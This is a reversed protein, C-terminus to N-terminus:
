AWSYHRLLRPLAHTPDVAVWARLAAIRSHCRRETAFWCVPLLLAQTLGLLLSVENARDVDTGAAVLVQIAKMHGKDAAAMLATSGSSDVWKVADPNVALAAKLYEDNGDAAQRVFRRRHSSLLPRALNTLSWPCRTSCHLPLPNPTSVLALSSAAGEGYPRWLNVFHGILM